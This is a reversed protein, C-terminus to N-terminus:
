NKLKVPTPLPFSNNPNENSHHPNFPNHNPHHAISNSANNASTPTPQKTTTAIYGKASNTADAVKAFAHKTTTAIHGKTSNTADAIDAFTHKTITAIHGKASNTADAVNAFAHKTITAIHREPTNASIASSAVHAQASIPNYAADRGSTSGSTHGLASSGSSKYRHKLIVVSHVHVFPFL